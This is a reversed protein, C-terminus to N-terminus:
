NETLLNNITREFENVFETYHKGTGPGTFGTHIKRVIGKKDIVILTPFAIFNELMPLSEAVQTKDNTYGTLLMDYPVNFRKRLRDVNRKSKEFDTTREYALAVIEVGKERYKKYFPVLYATEDMCNPCWSGFFQVLVLKSKFKPDSLSVKNGELDPFSFDIKKYGTKLATLSYADPLIAKDDKRAVWDYIGKLGAYFKGEVLTSDNILKGTFLYANAGDFCSLYLNEDSVTGELYRYDGTSTLFTGSLRGEKQAFEGVAITTDAANSSTFTASWRGSPNIKSKKDAKFFRWSDGAKADFKMAVDGEPLRRIWEGDLLKGKIRARIESDFLPMKIFLSDSNMSIEDVRFREKGNIINIFRVGASDQVEFNFPIEAGSETKLTARWIGTKLEQTSSTGCSSLVGLLLCVFTLNRLASM